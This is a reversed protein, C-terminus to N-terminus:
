VLRYFGGAETVRRDVKLNGLAAHYAWLGCREAHVRRQLERNSLPGRALYRQIKEELMAITNDADIPDTLRRLELEYDLMSVVTRVTELDVHDKDTTLAILALLRFGITDLRRTHESGPLREYWETWLTNAESSIDLRLPLKKMQQNIRDGITKL